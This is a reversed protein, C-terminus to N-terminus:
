LPFRLHNLELTNVFLCGRFIALTEKDLPEPGTSNFFGGQANVGPQLLKSWTSRQPFPEPMVRSSPLFEAMSIEVLELFFSFGALWNLSVSFVPPDREDVTRMIRFVIIRHGQSFKQFRSRILAPCCFSIPTEFRRCSWCLAAVM